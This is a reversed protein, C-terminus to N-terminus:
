PTYPTGSPFHFNGSSSEGACDTSLGLIAANDVFANDDIHYNTTSPIPCYMEYAGGNGLFLKNEKILTNATNPGAANNNINIASTDISSINNHQITVNTGDGGQIGDNHFGSGSALDHIYSDTITADTDVFIGDECNSIDVRTATFNQEKIGKGGGNCVIDVDQITLPPNGITSAASPEIIDICAVKSNKITVGSASVLVCGTINMADIVENTTNATYDGSFNTLSTGAPVGTCSADPYNPLACSGGGGGSVAYGGIFISAAIVAGVIASRGGAGGAQEKLLRRLM